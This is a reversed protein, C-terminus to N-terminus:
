EAAPAAGGQGDAAPADLARDMEAIVADTANLAQDALLVSTEDLVALAGAREMVAVLIPGVEAYFARRRQDFELALASARADQERRAEVVRADFDDARRRFEAPDLTARLATLEREEAEFATEISRAEARAREREAEEEALLARGRVSGTLLREQSLYLFPPREPTAQAAGPAAPAALFLALAVAAIRGLDM